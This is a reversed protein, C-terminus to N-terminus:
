KKKSKTDMREHLIRVIEIEKETIIRYFIIHRGIKYGLVDNHIQEYIKGINPIKAIKKCESILLNYYKDAQRESWANYTYNWIQSLDEIAKRTFFYRCM